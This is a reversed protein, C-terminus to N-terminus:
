EPPPGPQRDCIARPSSHAPAPDGPPGSAADRRPDPAALLLLRYFTDYVADALHLAHGHAIPDRDLDAPGPGDLLHVFDLALQYHGFTCRQATLLRHLTALAPLTKGREYDSVASGHLGAAQALQHQNCRRCSRLVALARGLISPTPAVDWSLPRPPADPEGRAALPPLAASTEGSPPRSGADPPPRRAGFCQFLHYTVDYLTDALRLARRHATPDRDLLPPALAGPRDRTQM